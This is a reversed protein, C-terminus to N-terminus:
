RLPLGRDHALVIAETRDAVGLKKYISTLQNSVTKRAVFMSAAIENTRQGTALRDLVERERDSLEPFPYDPVSESASITALLADAVGPGFTAQGSVVARLAAAVEDHGAGKLLYGRAGARVAGVAAAEDDYMSLMLVASGPVLRAIQRTAEIGDMGPMQIDMLIADPKLIVAQRVAAEGDAAEGVVEFGDLQTLVLALGDRVVAHDDAILVRIPVSAM